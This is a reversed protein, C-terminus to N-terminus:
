LDRCKACVLSKTKIEDKTMPTSLTFRYSYGCEAFYHFRNNLKLKHWKPKSDSKHFSARRFYM